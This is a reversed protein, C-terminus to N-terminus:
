SGTESGSAPEQEEPAEPLRGPPRRHEEHEALVNLVNVEYEVEGKQLMDLGAYRREIREELYTVRSVPNPHTSFFEIPRITQLEQLIRMTEVAALPDYGAQVLYNIGVLDAAKEDDRSYQLSLSARSSPPEPWPM